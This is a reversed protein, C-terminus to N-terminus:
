YWSDGPQFGALSANAPQQRQQYLYNGIGANIGNSLNAAGMMGYMGQNSANQMGYGGIANAANAGSTATQAAANQGAGATGSLFGYTRQKNQADRSFADNFKTGAYDQNFRTLAKLTAGSDYGGRAASARDIGKNGESM